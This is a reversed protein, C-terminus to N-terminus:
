EKVVKFSSEIGNEDIVKIIYFGTVYSSMDIVYSSSGNTNFTGLLQGKSNMVSIKNNETSLGKIQLNGKTPNPMVEIKNTSIYRVSKVWSYDVEGSLSVSKLRYYNM